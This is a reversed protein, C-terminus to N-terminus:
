EELDDVEWGDGLSDFSLDLKKGHAM